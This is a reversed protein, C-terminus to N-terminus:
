EKNDPRFFLRVSEILEFNVLANIQELIRRKKWKTKVFPLKITSCYKAFDEFKIPGANRLALYINRLEVLHYVYSFSWGKGGKILKAAKEDFSPLEVRHSDSDIISIM